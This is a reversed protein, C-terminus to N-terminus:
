SVLVFLQIARMVDQFLGKVSNIYLASVSTKVGLTKLLGQKDPQRYFDPQLLLAPSLASMEEQCITFPFSLVRNYIKSKM